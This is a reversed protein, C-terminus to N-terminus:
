VTTELTVLLTTSINPTPVASDSAVASHAPRHLVRVGIPALSKIKETGMWIAGPGVRSATSHTDPNKIPRLTALALHQGGLGM